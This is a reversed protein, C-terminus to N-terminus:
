HHKLILRLMMLDVPEMFAIVIDQLEEPLSDM